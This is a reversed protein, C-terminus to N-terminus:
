KLYITDSSIVKTDQGSPTCLVLRISYSEDNLRQIDISLNQKIYEFVNEYFKDEDM